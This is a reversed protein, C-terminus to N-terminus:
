QKLAITDQTIQDFTTVAKADAEFGRQAVILNAFETAIDVNSLELSGGSLTGLSGAGPVGVVAPGSALTPSYDTTGDLQLGNVNAFNALAIQGLAQTKGNSFSGTITGDGGIAFNVLSGSSSGDQNTASTTSPSAVQAILPSTGNLVNWNFTQDSAGDAFGTIPIAKVDALTFATTPVTITDGTAFATSGAAITLDIQGSTFPTGVTATGLAGSVSGSVTFTTPSTATMTITQPVTAATAALGSVTGNGTNGVAYVPAGTGGGDGTLVGNGNFTLTGTALIGTPAPGGAPTNLDAPPISLNYSWTNPATNTFNYTLTHSAGLSDYITVPTSFTSGVGAAANLNATLDVNGTATPPSITGAGLQLPAVGAGTNVVGDVAPYGLVQQGASTVLFNNADTSFDGARTYDIVGSSNQVAFFGDGQIAVDTPVGTASVSGQTFLSPMSGVQVGAGVQIPDGSGTTGLSQYFLDSFLVSTDKYGTTNQNSLNNAIASLATSEATLGSLPISFDPM